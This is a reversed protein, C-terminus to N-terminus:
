NIQFSYFEKDEAIELTMFKGKEISMDQGRVFFGVLLGVPHNLVITGLISAGVAIEQSFTGPKQQETFVLPIKNGDITEINEVELTLSGDRGFFGAKSYEAINIEGTMGSPIALMNNIIIDEVVIFKINQGKEVEASSIAEKIEIFVETGEPIKGKGVTIEYDEFFNVSLKDIAKKIGEERIDIDINMTEKIKITREVLPDRQINNSLLWEMTNVILLLSKNEEPSLVYEIIKNSRQILTRGTTKQGFLIEELAEIRTIIDQNQVEGYLQKEVENIQNVPLIGAETTKLPFINILLFMIIIIFKNNRKKIM